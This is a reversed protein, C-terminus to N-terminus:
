YKKEIYDNKITSILTNNRSHTLNDFCSLSNRLVKKKTKELVLYDQGNNEYFTNNTKIPNTM